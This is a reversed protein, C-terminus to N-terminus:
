RVATNLSKRCHAFSFGHNQEFNLLQRRLYVCLYISAQYLLNVADDNHFFQPKTRLRFLFIHRHRADNLM